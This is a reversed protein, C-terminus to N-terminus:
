QYSVLTLTKDDYTYRRGMGPNIKPDRTALAPHIFMPGNDKTMRITDTHMHGYFHAVVTDHFGEFTKLYLENYDISVFEFRDLKYESYGPPM